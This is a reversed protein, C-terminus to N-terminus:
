AQSVGTNGPGCSINGTVPQLVLGSNKQTGVRQRGGVARVARDLVLPTPRANGPNRGAAVRCVRGRIVGIMRGAREGDVRYSHFTERHCSTCLRSLHIQSAPVGAARLQDANATWTDLFFSPGGSAAPDTGPVGHRPLVAPKDSFWAEHGGNWGHAAEFAERVDQGVRYCCPGISPGIAAVLDEPASEFHEALAHVATRAAGAATGRWGAHVAAVAGTRADAILVPVCDAVKVSLVVGPHNSVAIDGVNWDPAKPLCGTGRRVTVVRTGHVQRMSVVSQAPVGMALAVRHWGDGPVLPGPGLVPARTTFCHDAVPDLARCRIAPGWPYRMWRFADPLLIEPM